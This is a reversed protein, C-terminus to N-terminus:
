QQRIWAALSLIMALPNPIGVALRLESRSHDSGDRGAAEADLPPANFHIHSPPHAPNCLIRRMWPRLWEEKPEEHGTRLDLEWRLHHLRNDDGPLNSLRFYAERIEVLPIGDRPAFHAARAFTSSQEVPFGLPRLVFFFSAQGGGLINVPITAREARAPNAPFVAISEGSTVGAAVALWEKREKKLCDVEFLSGSPVDREFVQADRMCATLVRGLDDLTM